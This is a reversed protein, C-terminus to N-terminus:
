HVNKILIRLGMPRIIIIIIIIFELKLSCFIDDVNTNVVNTPNFIKNL